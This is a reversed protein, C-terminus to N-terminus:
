YRCNLRFKRDQEKQEDSDTDIFCVRLGARYTAAIIKLKPSASAVADVAALGAIAHEIEACAKPPHQRVGVAGPKEFAAEFVRNIHNRNEKDGLPGIGGEAPAYIGESQFPIKSRIFFNNRVDIEAASGEEGIHFHGLVSGPRIEGGARGESSMEHAGFIVPARFYAEHMDRIRSQGGWIWPDVGNLKSYAKAGKCMWFSKRRRFIKTRLGGKRRM